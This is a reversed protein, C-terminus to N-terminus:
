SYPPSLGGFMPFHRVNTTALEAGLLEASAAIILDATAIGRHSRRWSRGLEGAREAVARDAAVWELSELLRGARRREASRLGRLVEVRTIESCAPVSELSSLYAVAEPAGRLVDILISTDLLRRAPPSSV